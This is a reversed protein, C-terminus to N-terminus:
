RPHSEIALRNAAQQASQPEEPAFNKVRTREMIGAPMSPFASGTSLVWQHNSAIYVDM